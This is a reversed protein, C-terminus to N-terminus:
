AADFTTQNIIFERIIDSMERQNLRCATKFKALLERDIRVSLLADKVKKQKPKIYNKM